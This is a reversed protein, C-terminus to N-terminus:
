PIFAELSKRFKKELGLKGTETSCNALLGESELVPM